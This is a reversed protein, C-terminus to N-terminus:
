EVYGCGGLRETLAEQLADDGEQFATRRADRHVFGDFDDAEQFGGVFARWGAVRDEKSSDGIQPHRSSEARLRPGSLIIPYPLAAYRNAASIPLSTIKNLTKWHMGSERLIQRQKGRGSKGTLTNRGMPGYRHVDEMKLNFAGCKEVAAGSLAERRM